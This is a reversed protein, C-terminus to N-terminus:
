SDGNKIHQLFPNLFGVEDKLGKFGDLNRTELLQFGHDEFDKVVIRNADLVRHM